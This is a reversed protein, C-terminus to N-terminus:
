FLFYLNAIYRDTKDLKIIVSLSFSCSAGSCLANVTASM